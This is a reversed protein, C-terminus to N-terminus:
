HVIRLLFVGTTKVNRESASLDENSSFEPMTRLGSHRFIPPLHATKGICLIVREHDHSLMEDFCGATEQVECSITCREVPFLPSRAYKLVTEHECPLVEDACGWRKMSNAQFPAGKPQSSDDLGSCM